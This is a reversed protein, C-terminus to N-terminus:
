VVHGHTKKAVARGRLPQPVLHHVHRCEPLQRDDIGALIVAIGFVGLCLFDGGPGDGRPGFGEPDFAVLDIPLIHQGDIFQRLLQDGTRALPFPGNKM